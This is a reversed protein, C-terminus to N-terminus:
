AGGIVTVGGPPSFLAAADRAAARVCSAAPSDTWILLADCPAINYLYTERSDEYFSHLRFGNQIPYGAASRVGIPSRTTAHFRVQSAVGNEEMVQGLCLGPLMCEETGLVVARGCNAPLSLDGLLGRAAERCAALYGAADETGRRPDPLAPAPLFRLSPSADAAHQPWGATEVQWPAVRASEDRDPLSLLSLSDIGAAALEGKREPTLRSIISVATVPKDAAMPYARRLQRVMNILTKGTSFEDDVLAIERAQALYDGLRAACLSQNAAHSHEELFDIRPGSLAFAERTTHLYAAPGPLRAAVAAGVATATEAFGIVLDARPHARALLDGLAGMMALSATPSVPVHKGQLPNVILYARKANNVRKALRMLDQERYEM